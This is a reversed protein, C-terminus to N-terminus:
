LYVLRNICSLGYVYKSNRMPRLPISQILEMATARNKQPFKIEIITLSPDPANTRPQDGGHQLDYFHLNKDVTIRLNEPGVFYDRDYHVSLVPIMPESQALMIKLEPHDQLIPWCETSTKMQFPTDADLKYVLKSGLRGNRTKIEYRPAHPTPQSGYWRIRHKVRDSIGSLNDSAASMDLSDLYISNIRRTPFSRKIFRHALIPRIGDDHPDDWARYKIEYRWNTM